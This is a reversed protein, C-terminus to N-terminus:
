GDNEHAEVQGDDVEDVDPLEIGTGVRDVSQRVSSQASGSYASVVSGGRGERAKFEDVARLQEDM